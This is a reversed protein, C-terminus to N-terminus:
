DETPLLRELDEFWNIVVVLRGREASEPVQVMLFRGEPAVDYNRLRRDYEFDGQFLVRPRGTRIGGNTDVSVAMMNRGNRFYLERGDHSWAPHAGGDVSVPRKGSTGAVSQIYVEDRGSEPSDFALLRGDPSFAANEANM